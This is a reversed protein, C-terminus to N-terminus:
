EELKETNERFRTMYGSTGLKYNQEYTKIITLESSSWLNVGLREKKTKWWLLIEHFLKGNHAEPIINTEAWFLDGSTQISLIVGM